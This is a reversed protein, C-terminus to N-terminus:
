TIRSYLICERRAYQVPSLEEFVQLNRSHLGTRQTQFRNLTQVRLGWTLGQTFYVNGFFFTEFTECTNM